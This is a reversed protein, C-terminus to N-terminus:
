WVKYSFKWFWLNKEFLYTKLIKKFTSLDDFKRRLEFTLQNYLRPACYAFAREQTIQRSLFPVIIRNTTSTCFSSTPVLQLLDKIYRPEGSLLYKHALPCAIYEIRAKVPLFHLEIASPTIKDTSYRPMNVIIWVAANLIMQLGNYDTNPLWYLLANCYDIQTLTSSQVLKLKSERDIFKSLKAIIKLCGIVKNKVAAIQYKLTLNEDSVVDLKRM